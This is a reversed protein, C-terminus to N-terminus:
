TSSTSRASAMPPSTRRISSIAPPTSRCPGAPGAPRAPRPCQGRGGHDPEVGQGVVLVRPAVRFARERSPLNGIPPCRRSPKQGFRRTSRAPWGSACGRTTMPRAGRTRSWCITSRWATAPPTSAPTSSPRAPAASRPPSATSCARGTPRSSRHHPDHRIGARAAAVVSPEPDGFHAEAAAVQRANALQWEPPEALWYSDPLRRAHARAASAKWGCRTPWSRSARPSGSPGAASSTASGCGSRPPM